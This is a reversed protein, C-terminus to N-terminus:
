IYDTEVAENLCARIQEETFGRYRLFRAQRARESWEQPLRGGFRKQRAGRIAELWQESREDLCADILSESIGRERLEARIRQPGQGRQCRAHIFAETFREDSLLGEAALEALVDRVVDQALGKQCLKHQLEQRGHERRALLDMARRRIAQRDRVAM